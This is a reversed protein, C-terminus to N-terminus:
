RTEYSDGKTFTSKVLDNTGPLFGLDDGFRFTQFDKTKGKLGTLRNANDVVM